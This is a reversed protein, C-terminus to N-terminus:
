TSVQSCGSEEKGEVLVEFAAMTNAKEHDSLADWGAAAEERTEEIGGLKQLAIIAAIGKERNM